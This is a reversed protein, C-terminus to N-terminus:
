FFLYNITNKILMFHHLNILVFTQKWQILIAPVWDQCNRVFDLCSFVNRSVVTKGLLSYDRAYETMGAQAPLPIWGDFYNM